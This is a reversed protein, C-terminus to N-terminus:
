GIQEKGIVASDELRFAFEFGKWAIVPIPVVLGLALAPLSVWPARALIMLIVAIALYRLFTLLGFRAWTKARQPSLKMIEAGLWWFSFLALSGGIFLGIGSPLGSWLIGLTSVVVIALGGWVSIGLLLRRAQTPPQQFVRLESM